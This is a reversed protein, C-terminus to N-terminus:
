LWVLTICPALILAEITITETSSLHLNETKLLNLKYPNDLQAVMGGRSIVTICRTQTCAMRRVRQFSLHLQNRILHDLVM